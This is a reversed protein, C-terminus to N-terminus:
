CQLCAGIARMSAVAMCGNASMIFDCLKIIQIRSKHFEGTKYSSKAYRYLACINPPQALLAPKGISAHPGVPEKAPVHAKHPVFSVPLPSRRSFLAEPQAATSSQQNRLRGSARTYPALARGACPNCTSSNFFSGSCIRTVPWPRLLTASATVTWKRCADNSCRSQM